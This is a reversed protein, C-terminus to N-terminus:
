TVVGYTGMKEPPPPRFYYLPPTESLNGFPTKGVALQPLCFVFDRPFPVATFFTGKPNDL